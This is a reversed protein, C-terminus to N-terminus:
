FSRAYQGGSIKDKTASLVLREPHFLEAKAKSTFRSMTQRDVQDKKAIPM